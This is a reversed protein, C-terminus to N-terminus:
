RHHTTPTLIKRLEMELTDSRGHEPHNPEDAWRHAVQMLHRIASEPTMRVPGVPTSAAMVGRRLWRHEEPTAPRMVTPGAHAAAHPAVAVQMLGRKPCGLCWGDPRDGCVIDKDFCVYTM